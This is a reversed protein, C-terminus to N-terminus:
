SKEWKWIMLSNQNEKMEMNKENCLHLLSLFVSQIKVKKKDNQKNIKMDGYFKEFQIGKKLEESVGLDEWLLAKLDSIKIKKYVQM